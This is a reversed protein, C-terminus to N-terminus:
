GMRGSVAPVDLARAMGEYVPLPQGMVEAKISLAVFRSFYRCQSQDGGAYWMGQQGCVRWAGRIEGEDNVGWYDGM